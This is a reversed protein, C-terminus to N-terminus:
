FLVEVQAEEYSPPVWKKGAKVAAEMEKLWEEAKAVMRRRQEVTSVLKLNSKELNALYREMTNGVDNDKANRAMGTLLTLFLCQEKPDWRSVDEEWLKRAAQFALYPAGDEPNSGVPYLISNMYAPDQIHRYKTYAVIAQQAVSLFKGKLMLQLFRVMDEPPLLSYEKTVGRLVDWLEGPEYSEKALIDKRRRALMAKVRAYSLDPDARSQKGIVATVKAGQAKDKNAGSRELSQMTESAYLFELNKAKTYLGVFEEVENDTLAPPVPKM